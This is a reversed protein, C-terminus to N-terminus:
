EVGEDIEGDIEGSLTRVIKEAEIKMEDPTMKMINQNVLTLNDPAIAGTVQLASKIKSDDGNAAERGLTEM